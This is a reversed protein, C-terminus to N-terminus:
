QIAALMLIRGHPANSKCKVLSINLNTFLGVSHTAPLLYDRQRGMPACWICRGKVILCLDCVLQIKLADAIRGLELLLRLNILYLHHLHSGFSKKSRCLITGFSEM